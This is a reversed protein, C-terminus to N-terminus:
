DTAKIFLIHLLCLMSGKLFSYPITIHQLHFDGQEIKPFVAGSVEGLGLGHHNIFTAVLGLWVAQLLGLSKEQHWNM